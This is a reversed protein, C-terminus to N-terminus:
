IPLLYDDQVTFYREINSLMILIFYVAPHLLFYVFSCILLSSLIYGYIMFMNLTPNQNAIILYINGALMITTPIYYVILNVLIDSTTANKSLRFPTWKDFCSNTQIKCYCCFYYYNDVIFKLDCDLNFCCRTFSLLSIIKLTILFVVICSNIVFMAIGFKFEKTDHFHKNKNFIYACYCFTSILTVIHLFALTKRYSFKIKSTEIIKNSVDNKCIICTKGFHVYYDNMCKKHITQKQCCVNLTVMDTTDTDRCIVCEPVEIAGYQTNTRHSSM